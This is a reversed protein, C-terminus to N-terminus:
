TAYCIFMQAANTAPILAFWSKHVSCWPLGESVSRQINGSGQIALVKVRERFLHRTVHLAIPQCALLHWTSVTSAYQECFLLLRVVGAALTSASISM